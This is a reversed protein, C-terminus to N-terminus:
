ASVGTNSNYFKSFLYRLIFLSVGLWYMFLLYNFNTEQVPINEPVYNGFVYVEDLLNSMYIKMPHINEAGSVYASIEIFIFPTVIAILLSSILYLRNLRFFTQKRLFLKYYALLIFLISTTKIIYPFSLYM